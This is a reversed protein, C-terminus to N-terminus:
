FPLEYIETLYTTVHADHLNSRQFMKYRDLHATPDLLFAELAQEQETFWRAEDEGTWEFEDEHAMVFSM